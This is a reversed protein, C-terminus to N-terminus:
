RVTFHMMPSIITEGLVNYKAEISYVGRASGLNTIGSSLVSTDFRFVMTNDSTISVLDATDAFSSVDVWAPLNTDENHKRIRLQPNDVVTQNFINRINQSIGQNQVTTECGVKIDVVEGLRVQNPTLRTKTRLLVDETTTVVSDQFLEFENIYTKWDSLAAMKVTWIEIYRGAALDGAASNVGDLVVVKRGDEVSYISSAMALSGDYSSADATGSWLYLPTESVTGSNDLVSSPSVNAEKRFLSVSSIDYPEQYSGNLIFNTRLAVRQMTGARQYREVVTATGLKM